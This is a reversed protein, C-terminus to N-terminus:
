ILIQIKGKIENGLNFQESLIILLHSLVTNPTKNIKDLNSFDRINFHSDYYAINVEKSVLFIGINNLNIKVTICIFKSTKDTISNLAMTYYRDDNKTFNEFLYASKILDHNDSYKFKILSTMLSERNVIYLMDNFLSDNKKEVKIFSSLLTNEFYSHPQTLILYDRNPFLDFAQMLFDISRSEFAQEVFYKGWQYALSAAASAPSSM